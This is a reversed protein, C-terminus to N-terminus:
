HLRSFIVTDLFRGNFFYDEKFHAEKIFGASTLISASAMNEPNIKAEISHLSMTGFGYDIVCMLAEKMIGKQWYKPDLMYGIEARYNEKILRWYGITGILLSPYEKIAIGWTIGNNHALADQIIGIFVEADQLTGARPRDIYKMVAESSRLALMAENDATTIQRLVLRPTQLTPFPNFNPQLVAKIESKSILSCARHAAPSSRHASPQLCRSSAM